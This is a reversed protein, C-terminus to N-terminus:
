KWTGNKVYNRQDFYGSKKWPVKKSTIEMTPFDVNNGRVKKPAIKESSVDENNGSVKKGLLKSPRLIWTTQM